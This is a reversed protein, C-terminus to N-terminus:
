SESTERLVEEIRVLGKLAKLVGDIRLTIMGQKKAEAVLKAQTIETNVIEALSDTMSLVEFLAIRGSIGKDNCKKCGPAEYVKYPASYKIKSKINPPLKNLETQIIDQIAKPAPVSKKCHECLRSVLRQGVMLSVASPILFSDVGMDILRPIVGIANNTHLTTLVVHGTLAAHVALQATEKDRVEGVMIIDPDQRFIQRLGSSFDYGIEPRVQSQNLGDIYYEVPDELSVINVDESNIIQMLAYLTTSKGSGTPGTVLVMGYPRKIADEVLSQQEELGLNEIGKLGVTPDLVRIAVKEGAPTPFTAVRFDIDRGFIVTRFRGDQPIRTEDIKLDSLVKVRSIVPQHLEMPLTSVEQLNGNIRFRIRTKTRQPEIHIDSANESVASKLTSAVIKIIPAEEAVDVSEDISITRQSRMLGKGPKVNISKIARDVESKYLGFKKLTAELDSPTIVYVGLSLKQEKAIFRLAEQARVEDPNLMGVVLMNGQKSIPVVGYNQITDLSILKVADEPITDPDIHKYPIGLASGKAKAVSVEDVARKEYILSEVSKGLSNAEVSLKAALERSLLGQNVLADLLNKDEM